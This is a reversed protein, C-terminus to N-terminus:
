SSIPTGLKHATEKSIGVWVQNQEANRSSNFALYAILTFLFVVAFQIIPYYKLNELLVSDSYYLYQKENESIEIIIPENEEKMKLLQRSLIRDKNEETFSINKTGLIQNTSDTYIIPITTNRNIIDLLFSIDLNTNIDTSALKQTANAWLEVNKREEIAM